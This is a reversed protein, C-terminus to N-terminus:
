KEEEFAVDAVYVNVHTVANGTMNQLKEKVSVQVNEAVQKVQANEKVCIYIDIEVTGNKNEVRVPKFVTNRSIIQKIDATKAALSKVGEVETAAIGAMKEVVATNIALGNVNSM